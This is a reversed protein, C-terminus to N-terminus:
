AASGAELVRSVTVVDGYLIDRVEQLKRRLGEQRMGSRSELYAKVHMDFTSPSLMLTIPSVLKQQRAVWLLVWQHRLGLGAFRATSLYVLWPHSQEHRRQWWQLISLTSLLLLVLGVAIILWHSSILGESSLNKSIEKLQAVSTGTTAADPPASTDAATQALLSIPVSIDFM